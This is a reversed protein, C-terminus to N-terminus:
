SKICLITSLYRCKHHCLDSICLHVLPSFLTLVMDKLSVITGNMTDQPKSTEWIVKGDPQTNHAPGPCVVFQLDIFDQHRLDM